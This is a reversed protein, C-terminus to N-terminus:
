SSHCVVKNLSRVACYVNGM